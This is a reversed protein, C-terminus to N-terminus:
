LNTDSVEIECDSDLGFCVSWTSPCHIISPVRGIAPRNIWLDASALLPSRCPWWCQGLLYVSMKAALGKILGSLWNVSWTRVCGAVVLTM